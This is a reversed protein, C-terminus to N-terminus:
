FPGIRQLSYSTVKRTEITPSCRDLHLEILMDHNLRMRHEALPILLLM